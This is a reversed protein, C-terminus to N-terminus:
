RRLPGGHSMGQDRASCWKHERLVLVRWAVWVVVGRMHGEVQVATRSVPRMGIGTAGAAVDQNIVTAHDVGATNPMGLGTQMHYHHVDDCSRHAGQWDVM